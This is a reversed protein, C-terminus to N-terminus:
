PFSPATIKQGVANGVAPIVSGGAAVGPVRGEVGVAIERGSGAVGVLELEMDGYGPNQAEADAALRLRFFVEGESRIVPM